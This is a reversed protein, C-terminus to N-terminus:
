KQSQTSCSACNLFCPCRGSLSDISLMVQALVFCFTQWLYFPSWPKDLETRLMIPKAPVNVFESFVTLYIDMRSPSILLTVSWCDHVSRPIERRLIISPILGLWKDATSVWTLRYIIVQSVWRAWSKQLWDGLYWRGSFSSILWYHIRKKSKGLVLLIFLIMKISTLHRDM